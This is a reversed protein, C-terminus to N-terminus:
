PRSCLCIADTRANSCTDAANTVVCRDTGNDDQDNCTGGYTACLVGCNSGGLVVAFRCTTATEVCQLYSAAAGYRASCPAGSPM